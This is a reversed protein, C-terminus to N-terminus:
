FIEKLRREIESGRLNRYKIVGNPDFLIIHPISKIGYLEPVCRSSPKPYSNYDYLQTWPLKLNNALDFIRNEDDWVGVSLMVLGKDSYQVYINKLNSLEEVCPKCWTAWFDVLVYSGKGLYDSLQVMNGRRNNLNVDTFRDGIETGSKYLNRDYYQKLLDFRLIKKYPSAKIVSDIQRTTFNERTLDLVVYALVMNTNLTHLCQMQFEKAQQRCQALKAACGAKLLSDEAQEFRNMWLSIGSKLSDFAICYAGLQDNLPTGGQRMGGKPQRILTINGQEPIVYAVINFGNSGQLNQTVFYINNPDAKGSFSFSDCRVISTQVIDSTSKRLALEKGDNKDSPFKGTITFTSAVAFGASSVTLVAALTFLKKMRVMKEYFINHERNTLGDGTPELTFGQQNLWVFKYCKKL